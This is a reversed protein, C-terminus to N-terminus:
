KAPCGRHEYIVKRLPLTNIIQKLWSTLTPPLAQLWTETIMKQGDLCDQVAFFTSCDLYVHEIIGLLCVKPDLGLPPDM